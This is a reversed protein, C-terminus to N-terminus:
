TPERSRGASIVRAIGSLDPHSRIDILQERDLLTRVEVDQGAGIELFLGGGPKTLRAIDKVISRYATLGDAGGDLALLPDHDRVEAALGKIDATAIYPPNAAVIDFRCAISAAWDGAIWAARGGVGLRAANMRATLLAEPSRDVGVATANPLESLLAIAICGSGTGLDLISWPCALGRSGRCHCLVAEVLTETEPRPELTAASLEFPLGWFERQGLIRALPEGALRRAALRSLKAAAGKGLPRDAHIVLGSRDLDCAAEVLCRAELAASTAGRAVLSRRLSAVAAGAAQDFAFAPLRELSV